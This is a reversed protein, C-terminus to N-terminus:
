NDAILHRESGVIKGEQQESYGSAIMIWDAGDSERDREQWQEGSM